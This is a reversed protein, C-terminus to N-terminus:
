RKVAVVIYELMWVEKAFHVGPPHTSEIASVNRLLWNAVTLWCFACHPEKHIYGM